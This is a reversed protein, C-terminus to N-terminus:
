KECSHGFSDLGPDIKTRSLMEQLEDASNEEQENEDYFEHFSEYSDEHFSEVEGIAVMGYAEGESGEYHLSDDSWELDFGHRRAVTVAADRDAVDVIETTLNAHGCGNRSTSLHSTVAAEMSARRQQEGSSRPENPYEFTVPEGSQELDGVERVGYDFHLKARVSGQEEESEM